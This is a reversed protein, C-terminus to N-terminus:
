AAVMLDLLLDSSAQELDYASLDGSPELSRKVVQRRIAQRVSESLLATNKTIAAAEGLAELISVADSISVRERLLNQPITHVVALSLVKPVL